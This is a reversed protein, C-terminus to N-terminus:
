SSGIADSAFVNGIVLNEYSIDVIMTTSIFKGCFGYKCHLKKHKMLFHNIINARSQYNQRLNRLHLPSDLISTQNTPPHAPPASAPPYNHILRTM